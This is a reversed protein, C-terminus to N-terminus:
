DGYWAVRWGIMRGVEEAQYRIINMAIKRLKPHTGAQAEWRAMTIAGAHHPIMASLFDYDFRSSRMLGKMDKPGMGMTRMMMENMAYDRFTSSGYWRKRLERFERIEKSQAAIIQRGLTNLEPHKAHMVAMKAMEIAMAHHAAMMDIFQQDFPAVSLEVDAPGMPGQDKAPAATAAVAVAASVAAVLLLLRKM